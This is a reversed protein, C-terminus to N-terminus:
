AVNAPGRRRGGEASRRLPPRARNAAAATSQVLDDPALFQEVYSLLEGGDMWLFALRLDGLPSALMRIDWEANPYGFRPAFGRAHVDEAMM